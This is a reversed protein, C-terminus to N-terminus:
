VISYCKHMMLGKPDRLLQIPRVHKTLMRFTRADGTADKGVIGPSARLHNEGWKNSIHQRVAERADPNTRTADTRIYTILGQQYLDNAVSM